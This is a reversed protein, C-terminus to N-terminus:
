EGSNQLSFNKACLSGGVPRTNQYPTKTTTSDGTYLNLNEEPPLPYM